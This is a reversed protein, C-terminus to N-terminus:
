GPRAEGTLATHRATLGRVLLFWAVAAAISVISQATTLGANDRLSDALDDTDQGFTAGQFAVGAIVFVIPALGFLVWWVYVIPNVPSQRWSDDGPQSSPDSAKWSERLVLMPIAYVVLPPVFWGGVAWGPSWQTRRGMARHNGVIRHLWIISLVFIALTALGTLAGTIVFPGFRELFEDEDITGALYDDAAETVRPLVLISVVGAVAYVALLVTIATRMGGVRALPVASWPSASYGAYGPPPALNPPPPPPPPSSGADSM